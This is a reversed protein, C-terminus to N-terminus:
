ELSVRKHTAGNNGATIDSIIDGETLGKPLNEYIDNIIENIRKCDNPNSIEIFEPKINNRL